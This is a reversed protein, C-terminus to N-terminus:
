LKTSPPFSIRKNKPMIFSEIKKEWDSFIRFYKIIMTHIIEYYLM